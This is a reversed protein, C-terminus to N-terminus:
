SRATVSALPDISLPPFLFSKGSVLNASDALRLVEASSDTCRRFLM